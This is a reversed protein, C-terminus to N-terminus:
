LHSSVLQCSCQTPSSCVLPSRMVVYRDDNSRRPPLIFIPPAMEIWYFYSNRSPEFVVCGVELSDLDVITKIAQRFHVRKTPPSIGPGPIKDERDFCAPIQRVDSPQFGWFLGDFAQKRPRRM